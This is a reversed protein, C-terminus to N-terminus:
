TTKIVAPSSLLEAEYQMKHSFCVTLNTNLNYASRHFHKVTVCFCVEPSFFCVFSKRVIVTITTFLTICSAIKM